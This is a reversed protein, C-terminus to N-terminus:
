RTKVLLPVVFLNELFNPANKKIINHCNEDYFKPSDKRFINFNNFNYNKINLDNINAFNLIKSYNIIEEIKKECRIEEEFTLNIRSINSIKKVPISM